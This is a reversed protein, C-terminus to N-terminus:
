QTHLHEQTDTILTHMHTQVQKHAHTYTHTRYKEMKPPILVSMLQRLVGNVLSIVGADFQCTVLMCTVRWCMCVNVCVFACLCVGVCPLGIPLFLMVPLQKLESQFGFSICQSEVMHVAGPPEYLFALNTRPAALVQYLWFTWGKGCAGM